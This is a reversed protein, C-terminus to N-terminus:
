TPSSSPKPRLVGDTWCHFCGASEKQKETFRSSHHMWVDTTVDEGEGEKREETKRRRRTRKEEREKKKKEKQRGEEDQGWGEEEEEEEAHLYGAEWLVGHGHDVVQQLRLDVM